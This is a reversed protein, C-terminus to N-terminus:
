ARAEGRLRLSNTIVFLSSGVMLFAALAPSLWGLAAALVGISNYGFAWALNGRIVRVTRRALAIAWPLRTLDDGLLCVAASDRALDTGCGLAVGLDSAALAPADNIGDGVMAVPGVADHARGLAAVKEAPLLGAEVALGLEAALAGGRAAHDGTLVGLDLGLSRCRSIAAAAGPRLEEDFVFVGRVRGEWGILAYASGEEEASAVHQELEAGLRLGLEEMLRRSGLFTWLPTAGVKGVVGLGAIARVESVPVAAGPGDDGAFGVIASSLTHSSAAALAAARRLVEARDEEAIFRFV